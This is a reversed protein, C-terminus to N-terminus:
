VSGDAIEEFVEKAVHNESLAINQLGSTRLQEPTLNHESRITDKGSQLHRNICPIFVNHVCFLHVEDDPDLVNVSELHLFLERYMRLVGEYVDRWMCEIQQNHVSRGVIVTGPNPGRMPLSLMFKSVDVNEVGQDCRVRSPLGYIRGAEQFLSLVTSACNNNSCNTCTFQLGQTAKWAEM